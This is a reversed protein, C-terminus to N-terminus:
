PLFDKHIRVRWVWESATGQATTANPIDLAATTAGAANPSGGSLETYLVDVGVYFSKTVDWQLRSGIGWTSWNNSCGAVAATSGVTGNEIECLMNNATSNYNVAAYAGYLSQHWQPTWYHEYSLNFGWASTLQCSSGAGGAAGYICDSMIGYTYDAGNEDSYNFGKQNFFVYGLAGQTYNVQSQFYDGPAIMPFNIKLGAGAAWGSTDGPSGTSALTGYYTPNVNHWAGMVQASGWAQDVRLNGVIDPVQEGGYAGAGPLV